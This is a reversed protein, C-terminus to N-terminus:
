PGVSLNTSSCNAHLLFFDCPLFYSIVGEGKQTHSLILDQWHCLVFFTLDFLQVVINEINAVKKSQSPLKKM